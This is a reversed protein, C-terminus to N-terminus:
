AHDDGQSRNEQKAFKVHEYGFNKRACNGCMALLGGSPLLISVVAQVTAHRDCGEQWGKEPDLPTFVPFVPLVPQPTVPTSLENM